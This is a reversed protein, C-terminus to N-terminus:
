IHQSSKFLKGQHLCNINLTATNVTNNLDRSELGKNAKAFCQLVDYAITLWQIENHGNEVILKMATIVAQCVSYSIPLAAAAICSTAQIWGM